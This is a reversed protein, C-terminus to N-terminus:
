ISRMDAKYVLPLNHVVDVANKDRMVDCCEIGLALITVFDQMKHAIQCDAIYRFGCGM